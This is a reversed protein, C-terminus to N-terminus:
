ATAPRCRVLARRLAMIEFSEHVIHDMVCAGRMRTKRHRGALGGAPTGDVCGVQDGEPTASQCVNVKTALTGGSPRREAMLGGDRRDMIM